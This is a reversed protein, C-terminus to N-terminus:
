VPLLTVPAPAILQTSRRVTSSWQGDIAGRYCGVRKLQAHIERKLQARDLPLGPSPPYQGMPVRPATDAVNLAKQAIVETTSESSPCPSKGAEERQVCCLIFDHHHWIPPSV